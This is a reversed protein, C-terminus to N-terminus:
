NPAKDESHLDIINTINVSHNHLVKIFENVDDLCKFFSISNERITGIKFNNIDNKRTINKRISIFIHKDTINDLIIYQKDLDNNNDKVLILLNDKEGIYEFKHSNIIDDIDINDLWYSPRPQRLEEISFILSM